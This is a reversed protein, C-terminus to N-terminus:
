PQPARVPLRQRFLGVHREIIAALAEDKLNSALTGARQATFLAAGFQGAEAQAAALQDL